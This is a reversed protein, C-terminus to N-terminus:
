VPIIAEGNDEAPPLIPDVLDLELLDLVGRRGNTAPAFGLAVPHNNARPPCCAHFM